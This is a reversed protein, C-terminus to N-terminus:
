GVDELRQHFKHAVRLHQYGPYEFLYLRQYGVFLVVPVESAGRQVDARQHLPEGVLLQLAVPDIEHVM